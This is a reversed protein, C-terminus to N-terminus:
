NGKDSTKDYAADSAADISVALSEIAKWLKKRSASVDIKLWEKWMATCCPVSRYVHDREIIDLTGSPLNLLTGIEKWRSAYQPTFDELLDKLQLTSTGTIIFYTSEM